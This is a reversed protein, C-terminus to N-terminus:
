NDIDEDGKKNLFNSKIGVQRSKKLFFDGLDVHMPVFPRGHARGRGGIALGM